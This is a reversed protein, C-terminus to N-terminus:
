VFIWIIFDCDDRIMYKLKHVHKDNMIEIDKYKNILIDDDEKKDNDQDDDDDIMM